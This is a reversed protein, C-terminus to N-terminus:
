SITTYIEKVVTGSIASVYIIKNQTIDSSRIDFKWCLIYDSEDPHYVVLNVEHIKQLKYLEISSICEDSTIAPNVDITINKQYTGSASVPIGTTKNAVIWFQGGDVFVDEYLQNLTYVILSVSILDEWILM